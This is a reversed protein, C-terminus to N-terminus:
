IDKLVNEKSKPHEKVRSHGTCKWLAIVLSPEQMCGGM